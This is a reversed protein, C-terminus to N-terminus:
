TEEFEEVPFAFKMELKKDRYLDYFICLGAHIYWERVSLFYLKVQSNHKDKDHVTEKREQTGSLAGAM